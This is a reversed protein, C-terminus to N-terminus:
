LDHLGRLVTHVVTETPIAQETRAQTDKLTTEGATAGVIAVYRAGLRAAHALQNKLSRGALEMQATLGAGRAEHLVRFAVRAPTSREATGRDASVGEAAGRDGPEQETPRARATAAPKGAGVRVGSRVGGPPDEDLHKEFAIYLDIALM